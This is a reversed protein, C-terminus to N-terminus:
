HRGAMKRKADRIMKRHLKVDPRMGYMKRAMRGKDSQRYQQEKARREGSTPAM